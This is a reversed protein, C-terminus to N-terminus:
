HCASATAATTNSALWRLKSPTGSVVGRSGVQYVSIFYLSSGRWGALVDVILNFEASPRVAVFRPKLAAEVLNTAKEDIRSPRLHFTGAKVENSRWM